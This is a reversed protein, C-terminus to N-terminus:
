VFPNAVVIKLAVCRQLMTAVDNRITVVSNWCQVGHQALFRRQLDDRTVDGKRGGYFTFDPM